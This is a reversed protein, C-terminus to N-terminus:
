VMLLFIHLTRFGRWLSSARLCRVKITPRRGRPMVAYESILSDDNANIQTADEFWTALRQDAGLTNRVIDALYSYAAPYNLQSYLNQLVSAQGQTLQIAM